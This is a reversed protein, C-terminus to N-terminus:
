TRVQVLVRIPRHYRGEDLTHFRPSHQSRSLRLILQLHRWESYHLSVTGRDREDGLHFGSRLQCTRGHSLLIHGAESPFHVESVLIDYSCKCIICIKEEATAAQVEYFCFELSNSWSHSDWRLRSSKRVKQLQSSCVENNRLTSRLNIVKESRNVVHYGIHLSSM